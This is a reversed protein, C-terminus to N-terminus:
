FADKLEIRPLEKKINNEVRKKANLAEYMPNCGLDDWYGTFGNRTEYILESYEGLLHKSGGTDEDKVKGVAIQMTRRVEEDPHNTVRHIVIFDDCKNVKMNGGSADYRSPMPLFGNADIKKRVFETNTHDVVIVSCYKMSFVRLKSMMAQDKKYDGAEDYFSYPDIILFDIGYKEYLMKGNKLIENLGWHRDNRILYFHNRSDTLYKAYLLPEKDFSALKRGSDAQILNRRTVANSSEPSSIGWKYGYLTKTAAMLSSLITSKGINEVGLLFYFHNKKLVFYKDLSKWGTSVGMPIEGKRIQELHENETISDSLFDIDEEENDIDSDDIGFGERYLWSYAKKYDGDFKTEALISSNNYGKKEEFIDQATSFAQFFKGEKNYGGHLGGSSSDPRTMNYWEENSSHYSWGFDELLEIGTKVDTNYEPFRKLYDKEQESYRKKIDRIMLEDRQRALTLLLNRDSESITPISNFSGQIMKYGESPYSKICGGIGKTEITAKGEKNRALKQSGEITICKYLYHQGGSGTEQIVLKEYLEKPVLAKFTEMFVVPNPVNKTDFDLVELNGSAYGTSIGIEDFPYKDIDEPPFNSPHDDRIPEKTNKKIPVPNLGIELFRKAYKKYRM